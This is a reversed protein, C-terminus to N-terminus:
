LNLILWLMSVKLSISGSKMLCLRGYAQNKLANAGLERRKDQLQETTLEKLLKKYFRLHKSARFYSIISLISFIAALAFLIAVFLASLGEPFSMDGVLLRSFDPWLKILSYDTQLM